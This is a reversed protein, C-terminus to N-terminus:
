YVEKLVIQICGKGRKKKVRKMMKMKKKKKAEQIETLNRTMGASLEILWMQDESPVSHAAERSLVSQQLRQLLQFRASCAQLSPSYVASAAPASLSPYKMVATM